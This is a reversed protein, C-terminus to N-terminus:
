SGTLQPFRFNAIEVINIYVFASQLHLFVYQLYIWENMEIKKSNWYSDLKESNVTKLM